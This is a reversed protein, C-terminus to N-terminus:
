PCCCTSVVKICQLHGRECAVHLATAGSPMQANLNCKANVLEQVCDFHDKNVAFLLAFHGNQDYKNVDAGAAILEVM